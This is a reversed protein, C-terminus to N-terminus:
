LSLLYDEYIMIIVATSPAPTAHRCCTVHLLGGYEKEHSAEPDRQSISTQIGTGISTSRPAVEM